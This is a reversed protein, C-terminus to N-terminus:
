YTVSFPFYGKTDNHISLYLDICEAVAIYMFVVFYILNRWKVRKRLKMSTGKMQLRKIVMLFYILAITMVIVKFALMFIILKQSFVAIHKNFDGQFVIIGAINLIIAVFIILM